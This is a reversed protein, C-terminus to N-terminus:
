HKIEYNLKITIVDERKPLNVICILWLWSFAVWRHGTLSVQYYISPFVTFSSAINFKKYEKRTDFVEM